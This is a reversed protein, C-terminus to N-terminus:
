SWIPARSRKRQELHPVSGVPIRRPEAREFLFQCVQHGSVQVHRLPRRLDQGGLLWRWESAKPRQQFPRYPFQRM